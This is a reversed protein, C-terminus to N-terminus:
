LHTMHWEWGVLLQEGEALVQQFLEIGDETQVGTKSWRV